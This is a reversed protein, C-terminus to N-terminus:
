LSFRIQKLVAAYDDAKVVLTDIGAKKLLKHTNIQSPRLIDSGEKVEIGVLKGDVVVGFDPWGSRIIDFYGESQLVNFVRREGTNLKITSRFQETEQLTPYKSKWRKRMEEQMAELDM